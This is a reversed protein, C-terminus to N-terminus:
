GSLYPVKEVNDEDVDLGAWQGLVDIKIVVRGKGKYHIFEGRVGAMPGELVMVPDGKKLRINTGTILDLNASTLIRLSEIQDDPVPVPGTQNGLLRVAGTTKLINLQNVPDLPTKVFLYGKFLPVDIMLKRDKRISKRKTQPLFTEYNKNTISTYVTKEFNSRTLLAYWHLRDTM